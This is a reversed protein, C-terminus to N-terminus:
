EANPVMTRFKVIHFPLGNMGLRRQRFFLPGGSELKTAIACILLIPSFCLLACAAFAVDFVRKALCISAHSSQESIPQAFGADPAAALTGGLLVGNLALLSTSMSMGDFDGADPVDSLEASRVPETVPAVPESIEREEVAVSAYSHIRESTM